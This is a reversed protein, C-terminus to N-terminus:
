PTTVRVRLYRRPAALWESDDDRWALTTTGDPNPATSLIPLPTWGTLDSGAEATVTAAMLAQTSVTWTAHLHDLTDPGPAITYTPLGALANATPRDPITGRLFEILNTLGDHDPDANPGTILPDLLAAANFHGDLWDAFTVPIMLAGPTGAWQMTATWSAPLAHDPNTAPNILQLAPGHGDAVEPWGSEDDFSFDKITDADTGADAGDPGTIWLREGGNSLSGLYEGAIRANLSTGYRQRFAAKNAVVLVTDGPALARVPSTSVAATAFDFSMGAIFKVNDLSVPDAGIAQLEVYEFLDRDTFGATVEAAIADPPHYMIQSVVLNAATAPVTATQFTAETLASWEAGNKVRAKVTTYLEAPLALHFSDPSAATVYSGSGAAPAGGWDRPDTGDTTYYVTSGAPATTNTSIALTYAAPVVGGHQGFTVPETAPWLGHFRFNANSAPTPAINFLHSRRNSMATTWNGQNPNATTATTWNNFFAENFTGGHTYLLLPAFPAKLEDSRVKILSTAPVRDDLVQGNFFWKHVRDAMRLKFEPSAYLRRFMESQQSSGTGSNTRLDTLITDYNPPKTGGHGFSGEADWIHLRWVGAPIRERAAVWNNNPWDWMAMYINMLWYDICEDLDVEAVAADWKPKSAVDQSMTLLKAMMDLWEVGDGDEIGDNIRIDWASNSDFHAQFYSERYREVTNFFGKYIGNLYLGNITGRVSKHGMDTFLRRVLEDKIFPNQIDNKGARPRLQDFSKVPYDQGFIPYELEAQDYDERFFINFSPKETANASWPSQSPPATLRLRPRSFPSSAIRLGADESFGPMGDDRLWELAIPREYPRGHMLGMNYDSVTSASWVGNGDFVGGVLAMIGFQEYFDRDNDATFCMAPVGKLAVNQNILFTASKTGSPVAGALFARARVPTGTKDNAAANIVLSGGYLASTATPEAGNLTYRIEAGPTSTTIYLTQAGTYFGGPMPLTGTADSWFDPTSVRQPSTGGANAAGPTSVEFYVLSNDAPSRGFSHFADQRPFAIQDVLTLGNYLRVTEGGESLKFNTHLYALGPVGSNEDCLVLLREGAALMTGSPFPWRNPASAEDSLFWGTLNVDTAGDNHLEIWDAFRPLDPFPPVSAQDYPNNPEPPLNPEFVGGSPEGYGPRYSWTQALPMLTTIPAQRAYLVTVDDLRFERGPTTAYSADVVNFVPRFSQAGASNLAALFVARSAPTAASLRASYNLFGSADAAVVKLMEAPALVRGTYRVEDMRLAWPASAPAPMNTGSFKGFDLNAAPHSWVNNLVLTGGAVYDTYITARNAAADYTVAVHHWINSATDNAQDGLTYVDAAAGYNNFNGDGGPTDVFIYNGATVRNNDLPAPSIGITDWRSRIKGFGTNATGHDFDVQCAHRDSATSNDTNPGDVIRRLFSDFGTPEGSLKIFFEITFSSTNYIANHPASFRANALTADFSFTNDYVSGTIPDLIRVGPLDTSYKAANATVSTALAIAPNTVSPANAITAGATGPIVTAGSTHSEFRWWAAVDASPPIPSPTLGGMVLSSAASGGAPELTLNTSFAAPAKYKFNLITQDLDTETVAGAPWQTAMSIQPGFVRAPQTPATGTFNVKLNGTNGSGGTTELSQAIELASWAADSEPDAANALWSGAPPTGSSTNSASGATNTHTRSAGNANNFNETFETTTLIGDNLELAADLKMDGKADIAFNVVQIAIVNDGPVLLVNAPGLNYVQVGAPAAPRASFATADAYPFMKAAGLRARAAEKGNIFCVFGDNADINLRLNTTAAANAPSVTFVRRAYLSPTRGFLATQLNTGLGAANMGFPATGSAWAAADFATDFWALGNGLRPQGTSDWHLTRANPAAHLETIKVQAYLAPAAFLLPLLLKMPANSPVRM